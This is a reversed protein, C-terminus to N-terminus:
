LVSAVCAICHEASCFNKCVYDTPAKNKLRGQVKRLALLFYPALVSVDVMCSFCVDNPVWDWLKEKSETVVHYSSFFVHLNVRDNNNFM